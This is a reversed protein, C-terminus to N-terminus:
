KHWEALTTGSAPDEIAVSAFDVALACLPPRAPDTMTCHVPQGDAFGAIRGILRLRFGSAGPPPAGVTGSPKIGPLAPLAGDDRFRGTYAYPRGARQLTRPADAAFFQALALTQPAPAPESAVGVPVAPCSEASTWPRELWFGEIADFPQKGALDAFRPDSGLRQAQVSIRLTRMAPDYTWMGGNASGWASGPGACGFPLRLEFTRNVAPRGAPPLPQGAATADAAASVLGLIAARDLPALAAIAPTAAPAPAASASADAAPTDSATADPSPAKVVKCAPLMLVTALAMIRLASAGRRTPLTAPLATM